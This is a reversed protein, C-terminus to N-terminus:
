YGDVTTYLSRDSGFNPYVPHYNVPAEHFEKSLDPSTYVEQCGAIVLVMMVIALCLLANKM